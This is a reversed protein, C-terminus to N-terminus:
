ITRKSSILLVGIMFDCEQAEAMHGKNKLLFANNMFTMM